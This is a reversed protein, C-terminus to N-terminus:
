RKIKSEHKKLLDSVTKISSDYYDQTSIKSFVPPKMDSLKQIEPEGVSITANDLIDALEKRKGEPMLKHAVTINFVYPADIGQEKLTKVEPAAAYRTPCSMALIKVDKNQSKAVNVSVVRELVMNVSGQGAMLILADYNSKFVVYRVKVGLKEELELSTLHTANGIGVGGVILEPIGRLSEVGGGEKGLNSIVAWCADGLANVPIYNNKDLKGSTVHEVYKPAIVALTNEPSRDLEKVAIIQQGGPKFELVFNYKDQSSNAQELIKKTAPTGSHSPSYPSFITITETANAAGVAFLLSLLLKKM